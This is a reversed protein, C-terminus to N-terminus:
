AFDFADLIVTILRRDKTVRDLYTRANRVAAKVGEHDDTLYAHWFARRNHETLMDDIHCCITHRFYQINYWQWRAGKNEGSDFITDVFKTTVLYAKEITAM